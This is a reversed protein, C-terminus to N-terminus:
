AFNNHSDYRPYHAGTLLTATSAVKAAISFAKRESLGGLSAARSLAGL